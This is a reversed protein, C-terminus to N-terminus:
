KSFYYYFLFSNLSGKKKKGSLCKPVSDEKATRRKNSYTFLLCNFKLYTLIFINFYHLTILTSSTSTKFLNYTVKLARNRAPERLKFINKM